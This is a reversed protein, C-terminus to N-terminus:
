GEKSFLVLFKQFQVRKEGLLPFKTFHAVVRSLSKSSYTELYYFSVAGNRKRVTAATELFMQIAALLDFDYKQGM